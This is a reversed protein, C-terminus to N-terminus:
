LVEGVKFGRERFTKYRKPTPAEDESATEVAVPDTPTPEEGPALEAMVDDAQRDKIELPKADTDARPEDTVIVVPDDSSRDWVSPYDKDSIIKPRKEEPIVSFFKELAEVDQDVVYFNM